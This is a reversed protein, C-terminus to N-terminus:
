KRPMASMALTMARTADGVIKTKNFFLQQPTLDGNKLDELSDWSLTATFGPKEPPDALGLAIKATVTELDPVDKVTVHFTIKEPALLTELKKSAVGAIRRKADDLGLTGEEELLALGAAAASAPVAFAMSVKVGEPAKREARMVGDKVVLWVDGGGEGELVVHAGGAAARIDDLQAKAKADTAASAELLAVGEAFLSPYTETLFAIPDQSM